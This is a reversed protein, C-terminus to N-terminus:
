TVKFLQTKCMAGIQLRYFYLGADLKPLDVTHHGRKQAKCALRGLEKGSLDYLQITVKERQALTYHIQTIAPMASLKFNTDNEPRPRLVQTSTPKGFFYLMMEELTGRWTGWSHSENTERYFHEYGKRTLVDHMQRARLATDHITGSSIYIRLPLRPSKEYLEFIEPYKWFSPSQVGIQQFVDPAKIGVYAACLGGFSTGIFARASAKADTNFLADILPVVEKTVFKLFKPNAPYEELRRNENPNDPNRPDIFVAVVPELRKDYILNDLTTCLAGMEDDAYEHGDTVYLAPLRSLREYGFPLYVQIAVAYGLHRSQLRLTESMTGRPVDPRRLSSIPYVYRPMRLESSYGFGSKCRYPNAPDLLWERHNLVIKYDLRADAPFVKELLWLDSKGLRKGETVMGKQGGWQNFDGHWHVTDAHGFYLFTAEEGATMPVSHHSRLTEWLAGLLHQRLSANSLNSLAVLAQKIREYFEMRLTTQM